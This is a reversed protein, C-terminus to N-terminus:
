GRSWGTGPGAPRTGALQCSRNIPITLESYDGTGSSSFAVGAAKSWSAAGNLALQRADSDVPWAISIPRKVPPPFWTSIAQSSCLVRSLYFSARSRLLAGPATVAPWIRVSRRDNTAPCHTSPSSGKGITFGASSDVTVWSPAVRRSSTPRAMASARWDNSSPTHASRGTRSRACVTCERKSSISDAWSGRTAVMTASAPCGTMNASIACYAAPIARDRFVMSRNRAKASSSALGTGTSSNTRPRTAM